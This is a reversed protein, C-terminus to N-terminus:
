NGRSGGRGHDVYDRVQTQMDQVMRNWEAKTRCVKRTRAFSGTVEQMKCIMKADSTPDDSGAGNSQVTDNSPATADQAFAPSAIAILAMASLLVPKKM